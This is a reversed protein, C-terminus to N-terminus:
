KISNNHSQFAMILRQRIKRLLCMSETDVLFSKRRMRHFDKENDSDAAGSKKIVRTWKQESTPISLISISEQDADM